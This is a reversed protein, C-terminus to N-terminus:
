QEVWILSSTDYGIKQAIALYNDIVEQPMTKERSLLWMYDLNRGIVLAYRYDEDIAAVNYGAYFPGFFSVKLMGVDTKGVFKAKGKAEKWENKAVDYGRNVVRITGNDNLSYNATTQNLGREYRFDLRAIEHWTGLYKEANFPTVATAGDPITKGTFSIIGFIGLILLLAVVALLIYNKKKM